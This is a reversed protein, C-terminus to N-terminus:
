DEFSLASRTTREDEADTTVLGLDLVDLNDVMQAIEPLDRTTGDANHYIAPEDLRVIYYDDWEDPRVVTGFSSRLDVLHNASRLRVRTGPALTALPTTSGWKDFVDGSGRM